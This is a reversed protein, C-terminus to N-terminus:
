TLKISAAFSKNELAIKQGNFLWFWIFNKKIFYYSTCLRFFFNSFHLVLM